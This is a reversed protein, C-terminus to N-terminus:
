AVSVPATRAERATRAAGVLWDFLRQQHALTAADEEPHWQVALV